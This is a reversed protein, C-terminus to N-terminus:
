EIEKRKKELRKGRNTQGLKTSYDIMRNYLNKRWSAKGNGCKLFDFKRNILSINRYAKKYNGSQEYYDALQFCLEQCRFSKEISSRTRTRHYCAPIIKRSQKIALDYQEAKFAALALYYDLYEEKAVKPYQKNFQKSIVIVSDYKKEKYYRSRLKWYTDIQENQGFLILPYLFSILFLYKM